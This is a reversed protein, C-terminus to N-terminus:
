AKEVKVACVKFEPIKAIPDLADNTIRNIPSESYHFSGFVVGQPVRETIGARITIGGRRSSLAVMEGNKIGIKVADAPNIELNAEPALTNLSPSRRSMTGTHFHYLIRGTTLVLPYESDTAEAPPIYKIPTLLGKGRSFTGVHLIPTGPHDLSPCPWHLGGEQDIRDYTMGAYIPTERRIQNFVDEASSFDMEAGMLRALEATIKWDPWSYGVPDIAKRVRQVRRETNTFTGDKEAWSAGPLVVTALRATETLFIDQVVLFDVKKLAEEVHSANPDSIVPNEGMIYMGHIRGELAAPIMETLTLGPTDPLSDVGWQSAKKKRIEPDSVAQYSSYVNPLAGVDCAGQVNNQGRLPNVGTGPRGINGTIMAINAVSKVNDTGTSHQTIGMAFYFATRDSKGILEAVAKIDAAPVGTIEEVKEPPYNKLEAALGEFGECREAIFKKDHLDKEIIWNMIGNLLAVDTGPQHRLWYTAQDALDIRRPDAVILKAKRRDVARKMYSAIVPHNETTNTGILFIVDSDEIEGISNTMAGSGFVAALGAITSAHCLRACHDVNNTGFAQRALRQVLYNEENTCRASALAALSQPGYEEKIRKFETAIRSLAKPWSTEEFEGQENRVLPHTLRESSNVFNYGFRGKSCLRGKNVGVDDKTTIGVVKNDAVNLELQCGVGCYPCTTQVKKTEWPKSKASANHEEIANVPCVRMCEGCSNCRSLFAPDTMVPRIVSRAGDATMTIAGLGRIEACVKVCRGCLICRGPHYDLIPSSFPEWPYDDTKVRYEATDFGSLDYEYALARLECNGSLPCTACNLPHNALIMKIVERRLNYLRRSRTTVVMGELAKTNCATAPRDFGEVEVVCVRCSGIPEIAPHYCLTPIRAGVKKAANLITTGEPVTVKIGDVQLTIESKEIDKQTTMKM